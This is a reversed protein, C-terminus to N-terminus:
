DAKSVIPLTLTFVSGKNRESKVAITGNHRRVIENSIFLGIGFGPYTQEEKGEVRYFREFIKQQDKDEIGIGYDIIEITVFKGEKRLIIDVKDANPSYKIANNLLNALVQGLRDRDGTIKGTFDSRFIIAHKNTIGRAEQVAEEVLEQINFESKYLELRGSEIKSLDLLEGILRTLKAVQKAITHLSTKLVGSSSRTDNEKEGNYINILLQVYGNISTIPTKLEHSAMKIFDDKRQEHIKTEHIDSCSGIYGEFIGEASYLPAGTNKVWRYLGDKRKFRYEITFSERLDFSSTYKQLCRETDGPHIGHAWDNLIEEEMARGTFDLWGKNLFNYLKNRDAMWIMVPAANSITKFLQESALIKERFRKQDDIDICASIFGFFEGTPAFRPVSNDAIWRYSGDKHLLRYETYFGKQNKLSENYTNICTQKDDPHVGDLWGEHEEQHLARGTFELWTKNFYDNFKDSGSMWIMAPVNDAMTQFMEMSNLLEQHSEKEESIDIVTGILREPKHNSNFFVKGRIEIWILGKSIHHHFRVRMDLRGEGSPDNAKKIQDYFLNKDETCIHDVVLGLTIDTSAPLGSIKRCEKSCALIGSLPDYEWTGLKASEVAMRLHEEKERILQEAAKQKTIDRAIKSVGIINGKSDKIPSITLSIDLLRGDKTLRKTHYHDILEGKKIKELIHTEEDSREPPILKLIPQGIMEEATYGFIKEAGDNWSTIISTLTKSIIADGSSQVIAALRAKQEEAIKSETIDILLNTAGSITGNSNFTRESNAIFYKRTGDPREIILPEDSTIEQKLILAMPSQDLPVETIGDLEFIKFSGSWREKGIEPIRGWLEVAADNYFTIFGNKDIIYFAAPLKQFLKRFVPEDNNNEKNNVLLSADEMLSDENISEVMPKDVSLHDVFANKQM